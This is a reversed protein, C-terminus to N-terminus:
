IKKIEVKYQLFIIFYIIFYIIIDQIGKIENYRLILLIFLCLSSLKFTEKIMKKERIKTNNIYNSRNLESLFENLERNNKIGIIFNNEKIENYKNKNFSQLMLIKFPSLLIKENIKDYELLNDINDEVVYDDPNLFLPPKIENWHLYIPFYYIGNKINNKNFESIKKIKTHLYKELTKHKINIHEEKTCKTYFVICNNEALKKLLKDDLFYNCKEYSINENYGNLIIKREEESLDTDQLYYNNYKNIDIKNKECIYNTLNNITDDVDLIINSM